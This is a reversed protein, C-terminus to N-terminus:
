ENALDASAPADPKVTNDVVVASGNRLKLQGAGVVREGAKLGSTVVVRDDRAEGTVVVRSHAIFGGEAGPRPTLVYVFNGYPNFSVAAQPIALVTKPPGLDLHVIAFMGPLLAHDANALAARVTVMRSQPDIRSDFAQVTAEFVRGPWTDVGVRVGHGPVIEGIQQQPVSFDVYIPDLAQLSTVATGPSLYQGLDVQRIGLRGSFPARIIKEDMAQAQAQAQAQFNRLNALDLDLTARSIAQVDFQKQDRAMNATWLAVEANLQALKATDDYLRLRLLVTGAKVEQGSQFDIEDVIGAVQSSLDAGQVARVQGFAKLMAQWRVPTVVFDAVTQAPESSSAPASAAAPHLGRWAPYAALAALALLLLMLARIRTM